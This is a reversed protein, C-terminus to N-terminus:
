SFKNTMKQNESINYINLNRYYGALKFLYTYFEINKLLDNVIKMINQM